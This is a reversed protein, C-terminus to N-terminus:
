VYRVKERERERARIRTINKKKQSGPARYANKLVAQPQKKKQKMSNKGDPCVEALAALLGLTTYFVIYTQGHVAYLIDM